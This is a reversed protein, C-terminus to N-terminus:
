YNFPYMPPFPSPAQGNTPEQDYTPVQGPTPVQYPIYGCPYLYSYYHELLSDPVVYGPPMAFPIMPPPLYPANPTSVSPAPTEGSTQVNKPNTKFDSRRETPTEGDKIVKPMESLDNQSQVPSLQIMVNKGVTPGIIQVEPINSPELILKQADQVIEANPDVPYLKAFLDELRQLELSKGEDVEPVEPTDPVTPALNSSVIKDDDVGLVRQCVEFRVKKQAKGRNEHESEDKAKEILNETEFKRQFEANEANLTGIIKDQDDILSLLQKVHEKANAISEKVDVVENELQNKAELLTKAGLLAEKLRVIESHDEERIQKATEMLEKMENNVKEAFKTKEEKMAKLEDLYEGCLQEKEEILDEQEKLATKLEQILDYDKTHQICLDRNLKTLRDIESYETKVSM